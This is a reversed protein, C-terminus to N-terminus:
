TAAVLDEGWRNGRVRLGQHLRSRLVWGPWTAQVEHLRCSLPDPALAPSLRVVQAGADVVLALGGGAVAAGGFLRAAVADGLMVVDGRCLGRADAVRRAGVLVGHDALRAILERLPSPADVALARWPLAHWGCLSRLLWNAQLTSLELESLAWAPLEPADGRRLRRAQQLRRLHALPNFATRM